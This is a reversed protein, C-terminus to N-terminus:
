PPKSSRARMGPPSKLPTIQVELLTRQHGDAISKVRYHAQGGVLPLLAVILYPGPPVHPSHSAVRQGVKFQHLPM